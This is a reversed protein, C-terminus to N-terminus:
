YGLIKSIDAHKKLTDLEHVLKFYSEEQQDTRLNIIYFLNM